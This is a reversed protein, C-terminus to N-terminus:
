SALHIIRFRLYHMLLRVSYRLMEKSKSYCLTARHLRALYHRLRTNEGEVRTLQTKPLVLHKEPDIYNAYVCYGDTLYRRSDWIKIREWLKEFTRGSRDGIEIALIGPVYHNIATWLWVKHTRRGVYTQLEDLEAIVPQGEEDEPLDEASEKVWNMITTHHIGTVREIARFGMGNLYMKLCIRKVQPHYGITEYSERFLRGCDKCEFRQKGNQHGDKRLNSSHCQPCKM